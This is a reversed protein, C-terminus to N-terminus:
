EEQVHKRRTKKESHLLKTELRKVRSGATPSTKIRKKVPTLAKRILTNFKGIVKIKNDYQSRETQSVLLLFGEKSIRNALKHLVLKKEEEHLLKSANVDFRLEVRSSVKNVHQGGPGSSRTASFVFEQSFDREETGIPSDM